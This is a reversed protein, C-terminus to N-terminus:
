NVDVWDTAAPYMSKVVWNTADVAILTVTDGVTASRIADGAANTAALIIDAADPNIDMNQAAIVVFTFTMGIATSAEPLNWIGAGVAGSNTQVTQSEAITMTKGDADNTVTWLMGYIADTGDGTIAGDPNLAGDIELAGKVYTAGGSNIYFMDTGDNDEAVLFQDQADGNAFHRLRLLYTNNTAGAGSAYITVVASDAAYDTVATTIDVEETNVSFDVDVDGTAIIGTTFTAAEDFLAKGTAVHLAENANADILVAYKSPTAVVLTDDDINMMYGDGDGPQATDADLRLLSGTATIIGTGHVDIVGGNAPATIAGAVELARQGLQNVMSISIVSGTRAAGALLNLTPLDGDHTIRVGTSAGTGDQNVDLAINTSSTHDDNVTLVPGTGAGAFNRAIINAEDADNAVTLIGDLLRVDGTTLKVDGASITLQDTSAAGAIVTAGNLAVTFDDATGDYARLYYGTFAAAQDNDLYIMSGSTIGDTTLSIANGTTVSTSTLLLLSKDTMTNNTVVVTDLNGTSVVAAEGETITLNTGAPLNVLASGGGTGNGLAVTGTSVNGIQVAGTTKANITIAHPAGSAPEIADQAWTGINAVGSVNLDVCAVDGDANVDFNAYNILGTTGVIANDGVTLATTYDTDTIDLATAVAGDPSLTVAGTATVQINHASVVLDEGAADGGDPNITIAASAPGSIGGAASLSVGSKNFITGDINVTGSATGLIVNDGFTLANTISANRADIADTITGATCSFLIGDTIAQAVEADIELAIAQTGAFTNAIEVNRATISLSMKLDGDSDLTITEGNTYAADLTVSAAGGLNVVTGADDEWYLASTGGNDKVYVWGTNSTPNGSPASIEPVEMRNLPRSRLNIDSAQDELGALADGGTFGLLIVLVLPIFAKQMFRRM